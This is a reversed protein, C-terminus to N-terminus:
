KRVTRVDTPVGFKGFKPEPRSTHMRKVNRFADCLARAELPPLSSKSAMAVFLHTPVRSVLTEFDVPAVSKSKGKVM